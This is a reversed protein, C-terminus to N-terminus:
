MHSRLQGHLIEYGCLASFLQCSVVLCVRSQGDGVVFVSLPVEVAAKERACLALEAAAEAMAAQAAKARQQAAIRM